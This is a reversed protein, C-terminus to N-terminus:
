FTFVLILKFSADAGAKQVGADIVAGAEQGQRRCRGRGGADAGADAGADIVLHYETDGYIV